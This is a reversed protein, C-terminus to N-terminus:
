AATMRADRPRRATSSSARAIAECFNQLRSLSLGGSRRQHDKRRQAGVVVVVGLRLLRKFLNLM